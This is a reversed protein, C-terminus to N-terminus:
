RIIETFLDFLNPIEVPMVDMKVGQDTTKNKANEQSNPNTQLPNTATKLVSFQGKNITTIISQVEKASIRTKDFSIKATQIKAGEVFDFEVRAVGGSAKLEKRISGGCGMECTMGAIEATMLENAVATRKASNTGKVTRLHIVEPESSCASVLLVLTVFFLFHRM